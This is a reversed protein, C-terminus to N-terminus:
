ATGVLGATASGTLPNDLLAALAPDPRPPAEATDAALAVAVGLLAARARRDPIRSYIELLEVAGPTVLVAPAIPEPAGGADEGLLWSVPCDLKAAIKVLVSASVRNVGREYKQVQQFTLGLAAALVAQTIGLAKRRLRIRAGVDIDVPEPGHKSM